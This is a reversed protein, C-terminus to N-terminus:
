LDKKEKKNYKNEQDVPKTEMTISLSEEEDDNYEMEKYKDPGRKLKRVFHAEGTESKYIYCDDSRV